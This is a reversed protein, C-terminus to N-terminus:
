LHQITPHTREEEQEADLGGPRSARQKTSAAARSSGRKPYSSIGYGPIRVTRRTSALTVASASLACLERLHAPLGALLLPHFLWVSFLHAAECRGRTMRLTGHPALRLTSLPVCPCPCQAAYYEHDPTGVSEADRFAVGLAVNDGSAGPSGATQSGHVHPVEVCPFRSIRLNGSRVTSDPAPAIPLLCDSAM